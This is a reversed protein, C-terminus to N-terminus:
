AQGSISTKLEKHQYPMKVVVDIKDVVGNITHTKFQLDVNMHSFKSRLEEVTPKLISKMDNPQFSLKTFQVRAGLGKPSYAVKTKWNFDSFENAEIIDILDKLCTLLVSKEKKYSQKSSVENVLRMFDNEVIYSGRRSLKTPKVEKKDIKKIIDRQFRDLQDVENKLESNAQKVNKVLIQNKKHAAKLHEYERKLFDIKERLEIQTTLEEKMEVLILDRERRVKDLVQLGHDYEEQLDATKVRAKQIDRRTYQKPTRSRKM